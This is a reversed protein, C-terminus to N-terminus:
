KLRYPINGGAGVRLEEMALEVDPIARLAQELRGRHYGAAVCGYVWV